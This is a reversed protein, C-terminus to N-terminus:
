TNVSEKFRITSHAIGFNEPLNVMPFAENIGIKIIAFHHITHEILYNLERDFSSKVCNEFDCGFRSVLTINQNFNEESLIKQTNKILALTYNIDLEINFNRERNDYNVIQTEQSKLLCVYFEIIHRVHQGISNNNLICLQQIYIQSNLQSLVEVLQELIEINIKKLM